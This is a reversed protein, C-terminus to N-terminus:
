PRYWSTNCVPTKSIGSGPTTEANSTSNTFSSNRAVFSTRTGTVAKIDSNGASITVVLQQLLAGTPLDDAPLLQFPYNPASTAIVNSLELTWPPATTAGVDWRRYELAKRAPVYRWQTCLDNHTPSSEARTLWEVYVNGATSGPGPYNISEAYRIQSDLVGFSVVLQEGTRATQQAVLTSRTFSILTSALMVGFITFIAMAM